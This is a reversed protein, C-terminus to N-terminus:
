PTGSAELMRDLAYEPRNDVDVKIDELFKADVKGPCYGYVNCGENLKEYTTRAADAINGGAIETGGGEAAEQPLADFNEMSAVKLRSPSSEKSTMPKESTLFLSKQLRSNDVGPNVGALLTYGEITAFQTGKVLYLCAAYDDNNCLAETDLKNVCEEETGIKQGCIRNMSPVGDADNFSVIHNPFRYDLMGQVPRVDVHFIFPLILAALSKAKDLFKSEAGLMSKFRSKKTAAQQEAEGLFNKIEADSLKYKSKLADVPSRRFDALAVGKLDKKLNAQLEKIAKDRQAILEPDLTLRRALGETYEAQIQAIQSDLSDIQRRIAATRPSKGALTNRQTELTHYQVQVFGIRNFEVRLEEVGKTLVDTSKPNLAAYAAKLKDYGDDGALTFSDIVSAVSGKTTSTIGLAQGIAPLAYSAPSIKAIATTVKSAEAVTMGRRIFYDTMYSKTGFTKLLRGPAYFYPTPTFAPDDSGSLMDIGDFVAVAGLNFSTDVIYKKLLGKAFDKVPSSSLGTGPGVGSMVAETAGILGGYVCNNITECVVGEQRVVAQGLSASCLAMTTVLGYAAKGTQYTAFAAAPAGVGSAAMGWNKAFAATLAGAEAVTVAAMAGFGYQLCTSRGEYPEAASVTEKRDRAYISSYLSNLSELDRKNAEQKYPGITIKQISALMGVLGGASSDQSEFAFNGLLVSSSPERGVVPQTESREALLLPANAITDACKPGADSSFDIAVSKLWEERSNQVNTCMDLRGSVIYIGCSSITLDSATIDIGNVAQSQLSSFEQDALRIADEVKLFNKANAAQLIISKKYGTQTKQCFKSLETPFHPDNYLGDVVSKFQGAFGSFAKEVQGSSCFNTQCGMVDDSLAPITVSSTGAPIADAFSLRSSISPESAFVIEKKSQATATTGTGAAAAAVDSEPEQPKLDGMPSSSYIGKFEPEVTFIEFNVIRIYDDLEKGGTGDAYKPTIILRGTKKSVDKATCAITTGEGPHLAVSQAVCNVSGTDGTITFTIDKDLNNVAAIYRVHGADKFYLKMYETKGDTSFRVNTEKADYNVYFGKMMKRFNEFVSGACVGKKEGKIRLGVQGSVTKGNYKGFVTVFTEKPDTEFDGTLCGNDDLYEAPVAVEMEFSQSDCNQKSPEVSKIHMFADAEWSIPRTVSKIASEGESILASSVSDGYYGGTQYELKKKSSLQGGGIDMWVDLVSFGWNQVCIYAKKTNQAITDDFTVEIETDTPDPKAGKPPSEFAVLSTTVDEISGFKDRKAKQPCLDFSIRSRSEVVIQQVNEENIANAPLLRSKEPFQIARINPINYTREGVNIVINRCQGFDVFKRKDDFAPSNSPLNFVVEKSLVVNLWFAERDNNELPTKKIKPIILTDQPVTFTKPDSIFDAGADDIEKAMLRSATFSFEDKTEPDSMKLEGSEVMRFSRYVEKVKRNYPELKPYQFLQEPIEVSIPFSFQFEFDSGELSTDVQVFKVGRRSDSKQLVVDNYSESRALAVKELPFEVEYNTQDNGVINPPILKTNALPFHYTVPADIFVTFSETGYDTKEVRIMRGAANPANTSFTIETGAQITIEKADFAKEKIDLNEVIMRHGNEFEIQTLSGKHKISASSPVMITMTVPLKKTIGVVGFDTPRLTFPAIPLVEVMRSGDTFELGLRTTGPDFAVEYIDTSISKATMGDEYIALSIRDNKPVKFQVRFPLMLKRQGYENELAYPAPIRIISGAPITIKRQENYLDTAAGAVADNSFQADPPLTITTGSSFQIARAGTYDDKRVRVRETIIFVADVPFTVELSNQSNIYPTLQIMIPANAPISARRELTGSGKTLPISSPFYIDFDDISAIKQSGQQSFETDSDFDLYTPFPLAITYSSTAFPQYRGSLQNMNFGSYGVQQVLGSQRIYSPSAEIAVGPPVIVTKGGATVAPYAQMYNYSSYYSNGVGSLQAGADFLVREKSPLEVLLSGDANYKTKSDTPIVATLAVPLTVRLGDKLHCNESSAIAVEVTTSKKSSIGNTSAFFDVKGKITEEEFRCSDAKTTKANVRFEFNEGPSITKSLPEVFISSISSQSNILIPYPGENSVTLTQYDTSTKPPTLAFSVADSSVSWLKNLDQQRYDTNIVFPIDAEQEASGLKAKIKVKGQLKEKLQQPNSSIKLISESIAAQLNNAQTETAKVKASTLELSVDTYKATPLVLSYSLSLENALLNNLTFESSSSEEPDVTLALGKPDFSFLTTASVPITGTKQKFGEASIKYSISGIAPPNVNEIVYTLTGDRAEQAEAELINGGLADIGNGITVFANKVPLDLSDLVTFTLKNDKLAKMTKGGGKDVIANYSVKLDPKEGVIRASLSKGISFEGNTALFQLDVDNALRRAQITFSGEANDVPSVLSLIQQDETTKLVAKATGSEGDTLSVTQDNLPASLEVLTGKPAILKFKVLFRESISAEFNNEATGSNGEFNAQLCLGNECRGEFSIALIENRMAAFVAGRPVGDDVPDRLVEKDTFIASRYQLDVNGKEIARTKFQVAVERSGEFPQFEFHVYKYADAAFEDALNTTPSADIDPSPSGESSVVRNVPESADASASKTVVAGVASYGVIEANESSLEVGANGIRVQFETKSIKINPRNLTFKAVYTTSPSLTSVQENKLNFIGGFAVKTKDAIDSSILPFVMKNDINPKVEVESSYFTDYKSATVVAVYYGEQLSVSCRGNKTICSGVSSFEVDSPSFEVKANEVNKGTFHDKVQVVARGKAPKM